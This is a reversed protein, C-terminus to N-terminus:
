LFPPTRSQASPLRVPNRYQVHFRVRDRAPPLLREQREVPLPGHDPGLVVPLPVGRATVARHDEGDPFREGLRHDVPIEGAPRDFQLFVHHLHALPDLVVQDAVRGVGFVRAPVVGVVLAQEGVGGGRALREVLDLRHAAGQRLNGVRPPGLGDGPLDAGVVVAEVGGAQLAEPAPDRFPLPPAPEAHVRAEPGVVGVPGGEHVDEGQDPQLPEHRLPDLPHGPLRQPHPAVAVHGVAVM